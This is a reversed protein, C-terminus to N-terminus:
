WKQSRLKPFLRRLKLPDGRLRGVRRFLLKECPEGLVEDYQSGFHVLGDRFYGGLFLAAM